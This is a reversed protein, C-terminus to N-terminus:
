HLDEVKLEKNLWYGNERFGYASPNFEGVLDVNASEPVPTDMTWFIGNVLLRRVGENMMDSASGITSTFARGEKGGALMYSKTWAIPMLVDNVKLGQNNETALEDDSPKM